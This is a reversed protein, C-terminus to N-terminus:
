KFIGECRARVPRLSGKYSSVHRRRAKGAPKFSHKTLRYLLLFVIHLILDLELLQSAVLLPLIVKYVSGFGGEGIKNSVNFNQTAVQLEKYSYLKADQVSSFIEANPKM